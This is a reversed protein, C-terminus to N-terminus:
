LDEQHTSEVGRPEVEFPGGIMDVKGFVHPPQQDRGTAFYLDFNGDFEVAALEGSIDAVTDLVIIRAAGHLATEAVMRLDIEVFDAREGREHGPFIGDDVDRVTACLPPM